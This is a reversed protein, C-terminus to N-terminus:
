APTHGRQQVGALVREYEEGFRERSLVTEAYERAAAGRRERETGSRLEGAVLGPLEDVDHLVWGGGTESVVRGIESGRNVVAVIPLQWALLSAVRSPMNFELVGPAQSLLAVDAAELERPLDREPDLFGLLEVRPDGAAAARVADLGEGTGAIRLSLEVESACLTEVVAALGQSLGVNGMYLLRPPGDASSRAVRPPLKPAPNPLFHIKEAPVGKAELNRRFSQSPVVITSASAYARLELARSTALIRPNGILGTTAAADPLIDQLWLVWPERRLRARMIAPALALFSPSVVISADRRPLSAGAVAASAAYSADEVARRLGSSHGILLPLRLSPVGAAHERYPLVRQKYRGPPYHPFGTVVDLDHGRERLVQALVTSIPGM